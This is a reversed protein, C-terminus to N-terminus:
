MAFIRVTCGYKECDSWYRTVSFKRRIVTTTGMLLSQGVGIIGGATHYIPLPDYLIDSSTMGIMIRMGIAAFAARNILMFFM